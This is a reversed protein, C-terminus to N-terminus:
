FDVAWDQLPLENRHVTGKYVFRDIVYPLGEGGLITSEDGVHFHLHPASSNGSNGLLGLVQGRRVRQGSKVRISGPQLHAYFAYRHAGLDLVVQNGGMTELTMPVARKVNDPVNEAIGDKIAFVRADAVALVASAYGRYNKNVLPDGEHFSGDSFVPLWDTAFRQPIRLRGNLPMISRRHHTDVDPGNVAVWGNGRAPPSLRLTNRKVAVTGCDVTAVRDGDRVTLKHRVETPVADVVFFLNVIGRIGARLLTPAGDEPGTRRIARDLSKGEVEGLKGAAWIEVKLLTLDGSNGVNTVHLEYALLHKGDAAVAIPPRPVYVDVPVIDLPQGFAIGALLTDALLLNARAIM